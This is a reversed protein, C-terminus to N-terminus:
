ETRFQFLGSSSDRLTHGLLFLPLQQLDPISDTLLVIILRNLLLLVLVLLLVPMAILPFPKLVTTKSGFAEKGVM